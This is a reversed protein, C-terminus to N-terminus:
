KKVQRAKRDLEAVAKTFKAKPLKRLDELPEKPEISALWGLFGPRNVPNGVMHCDNIQTELTKWEEESIVGTEANGDVDEDAITIAFAMCLGKREGYSATSVAAQVPNMNGIPQGKAGFGDLPLDIHSAKEHGDKHTVRCITRKWGEKPPIDSESFAVSFGWKTYIPKAVIQINELKAYRSGTQSNKADKVVIPMEEQCFRMDRAFAERAREANWHEALDLLKGLKDPDVGKEIALQYLALPNTDMPKPPAVLEANM